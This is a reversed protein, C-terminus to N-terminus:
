DGKGQEGTKVPFGSFPSIGASLPSLGQGTFSFVLGTNFYYFISRIEYCPANRKFFYFDDGFAVMMFILCHPFIGQFLFIGQASAPLGAVRRVTISRM